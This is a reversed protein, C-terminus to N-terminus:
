TDPLAALTPFKEGAMFALSAGGGTSLHSFKEQLGLASITALTEGGGAIKVAEAEAIARAVANTGEDFPPMEIIGLPGNWFVTKAKLLRSRYLEITKPGVDVGCWSPDITDVSLHRVPVGPRPEPATVHDVPLLLKEGEKAGAYIEAATGLLADEVPTTGVAIGQSKFFTYSMAGGILVADARETLNKLVDVKTELKAGGIVAVFPHEPRELIKELYLIEKEMLLGMAAPMLRAIAEISAHARHATGFADNVYVDALAALSRAFNEDNKREGAHFRLNELMLVEGPRLARAMRQTDEGVCDPAFAVRKGLLEELREAVPRLSLRRGPERKPRGFHSALIVSAGRSLAFEITPMTRWIRTDDSLEGKATLPLNFDVRLFVRKGGLDLDRISRKMM